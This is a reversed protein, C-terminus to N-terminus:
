IMSKLMTKLKKDKELIQRLTKMWMSSIDWNELESILEIVKVKNTNWFKNKLIQWIYKLTLKWDFNENVAYQDETIENVWSYDLFEKEVKNFEQKLLIRQKKISNKKENEQFIFKEWSIKATTIILGKIDIKWNEIYRELATKAKQEFWDKTFWLKRIFIEFFKWFFDHLNYINKWLDYKLLNNKILKEYKVLFMLNFIENLEDKKIINKKELDLYMKFLKEDEKIKNLKESSIFNLNFMSVKFDYATRLENFLNNLYTKMNEIM